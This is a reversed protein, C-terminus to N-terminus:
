PAVIVTGEAIGEVALYGDNGTFVVDVKTQEPPDGEARQILVYSIDEETFVFRKPVRLTDTKTETIIDVDANLGSRLWSPPNPFTLTAEFYAVGDIETAIPSIFSITATVTESARADFVVSAPQDTNVKTIDIEPIRATMDFTDDALITVVPESSVTEGPLAELNTIEGAFPATIIRDAIQSDIAALRAEAIAVAANARTLAETRPEANALSQQKTVLELNQEAVRINNGAQKVTLNYANLNTVYSAGEPNPISITWVSRGYATSDAFQLSLGCSGFAGPQNTYVSFIGSELGSLRYSFGSDASSGFTEFSYMGEEDCSYTGSVAPATATEDSDKAIATLDSSLLTRRANTVKNTEENIVRDLNEEAIAVEAATVDRAVSTPGSILEERDAQTKMLDAVATKRDALLATRELTIIVDGEAVHDGEKVSVSEVIGTVPFSLEAANQAEVFGSISVIESVNGKSVTATILQEKNTGAASLLLFLASGILLGAVGIHFRRKELLKHMTM